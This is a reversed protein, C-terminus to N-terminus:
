CSVQFATAFEDIVSRLNEPERNAGRGFRMENRLREALDNLPSPVRCTKACPCEVIVIQVQLITINV